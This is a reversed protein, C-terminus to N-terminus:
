GVPSSRIIIRDTEAGYLSVIPRDSCIVIITGSIYLSSCSTHLQNSDIIPAERDLYGDDQTHLQAHMHAQTHQTYARANTHTHKNSRRIIIIPRMSPLLMTEDTSWLCLMCVDSSPCLDTWGPILIREIDGGSDRDTDREKRETDRYTYRDSKRNTKRKRGTVQGEEM